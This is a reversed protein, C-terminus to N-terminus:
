CMCTRACPYSRVEETAFELWEEDVRDCKTLAVICAPIGLLELVATHERTQPMVGDDAAICLLAGGGEGQPGLAHLQPRAEDAAHGDHSVHFQGELPDPHSQPPARHDQVQRLLSSSTTTIFNLDSSCM